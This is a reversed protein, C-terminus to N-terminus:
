YSAYSILLILLSVTVRNSQIIPQEQFVWKKLDTHHSTIKKASMTRFLPAYSIM